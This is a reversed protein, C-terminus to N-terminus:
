LVDKFTSSLHQAATNVSRLPRTKMWEFSLFMGALLTWSIIGRMHDELDSSQLDPQKCIANVLICAQSRLAALAATM